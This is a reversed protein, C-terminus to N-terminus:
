LDNLNIALSFLSSSGSLHYQAIGYDLTFRKIEIGFGFSFGVVGLKEEYKLEQRRQYNYGARLTFNPSPFIEAGWILHRMLQKGFGEERQYIDDILDGSDTETNALDWHNIHHM